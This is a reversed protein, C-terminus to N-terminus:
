ITKFYKIPIPNQLHNKTNVIKKGRKNKYKETAM